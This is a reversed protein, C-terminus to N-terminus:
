GPMQSNLADLFNLGYNDQTLTQQSLDGNGFMWVNWDPWMEGQPWVQQASASQDGNEPKGMDLNYHEKFKGLMSGLGNGLYHAVHRVCPRTANLVAIAGEILPVVEEYSINLNASKWQAQCKMLFLCAYAMTTLLYLPVGIISARMDPDNLILDLAATASSIAKNVFQRREPSMAYVGSPRLGRLCISFLLLRAFHYHLFVGKSPYQSVYKNPQLKDKWRDRWFGMDADFRRLAEFEDNGIMRSRDPGFAHFVRSLIIFIGVQSHLRFDSQTADPRQLFHEHCTITPTESIVPPRGYAISFHHDCVYLFYWLRAEDGYRSGDRLSKACFQHLNLETAIRVALGSLKWSLDSLWFAGICLGRVDDLTHYRDFVAQSVLGLFVPYCVDFARGEDQTHLSTVALIASTLISSSARAADLTEHVLAIGGWLYANLTGRFTDFLYEADCLSVRGQAIFDTEPSKLSPHQQGHHAWPDSRINRLKTAEFLSAMPASVIAQPDNDPAGPEISNERTMATATRQLSPSLSSQAGQSVVPSPGRLPQPQSQPQPQPQPQPQHHVHSVSTHRSGATGPTTNTMNGNHAGLLRQVDALATQLAEVKAEMQNKWENEGDLLTQLSKNVICKLDLRTCRGCREQGNELDCKVKRHQCAQCARIKRSIKPQHATTEADGAPPPSTDPSRARKM